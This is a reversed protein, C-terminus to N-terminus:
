FREFFAPLMTSVARCASNLSTKEAAATMADWSANSLNERKESWEMKDYLKLILAGQDTIRVTDPPCKMAVWAIYGRATALADLDSVESAAFAGTSITGIVAGIM